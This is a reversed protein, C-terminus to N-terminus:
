KYMKKRCVIFGVLSISLVVGAIAVTNLVGTKPENDLVRKTEQVTEEKSTTDTTEEQPTDTTVAKEALVYTSFHDTEFIAYKTNGITEVKATYETKEGNESIRYVVLNSTDIDDPIPVSIKVKGNPQISVNGNKLSIDYVYFKTVSDNLTTTVTNYVTGETVKEAVLEVTKPLNANESDFKIGTNTDETLTTYSCNGAVDINFTSGMNTYFIEGNYNYLRLTNRSEDYVVTGNELYLVDKVVSGSKIFDETGVKLNSNGKYAVTYFLFWADLTEEKETDVNTAKFILDFEGSKNTIDKPTVPCTYIYSNNVKEKFTFTGFDTKITSGYNNNVSMKYTCNTYDLATNLIAGPGGSEPPCYSMDNGNSDIITIDAVLPTSDTAYVSSACMCSIFIITLLLLGAIKSKM